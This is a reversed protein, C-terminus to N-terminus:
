QTAILILNQHFLLNNLNSQIENKIKGEYKKKSCSKSIIIEEILKTTTYNKTTSDSMNEKEEKM